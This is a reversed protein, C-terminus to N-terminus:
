EQKEQRMLVKYFQYFGIGLGLFLGILLFLPRTEYKTDIWYGIYGFIGISAMLSYISGLYPGAKRFSQSFDNLGKRSM